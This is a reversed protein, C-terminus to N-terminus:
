RLGKGSDDPGEFMVCLVCYRLGYERFGHAMAPVSMGENWLTM